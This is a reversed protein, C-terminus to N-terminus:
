GPPTKPPPQFAEAQHNLFAERGDSAFVAPLGETELITLLSTRLISETELLEREADSEGLQSLRSGHVVENRRDYAARVLRFGVAADEGRAPNLFCAVRSAITNGISHRQEASGFLAELGVWNMLFRLEWIEEVVAFALFRLGVHLASRRAVAGMIRALGSARQLDEVGLAQRNYAPLPLYPQFRNTKTPHSEANIDRTVVGDFSLATPRALWMALMADRVANVSTNQDALPDDETQLTSVLARQSSFSVSQGVIKRTFTHESVFWDPIDTIVVRPGVQHDGPAILGPPYIPAVTQWRTVPEL